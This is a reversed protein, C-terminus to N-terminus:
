QINGPGQCASRQQSPGPPDLVTAPPVLAMRPLVHIYVTVNGSPLLVTAVPFESSSDM